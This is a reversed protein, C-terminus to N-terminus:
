IKKLNYITKKVRLSLNYIKIFIQYLRAFLILFFQNIISDLFKYSTFIRM